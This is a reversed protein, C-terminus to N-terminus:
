FSPGKEREGGGWREAGPDIFFLAVLLSNPSLSSIVIPANRRTVHMLKLLGEPRMVMASDTEYSFLGGFAQPLNPLQPFGIVM